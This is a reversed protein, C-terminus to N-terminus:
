DIIISGIDRITGRVHAINLNLQEKINGTKQAVM